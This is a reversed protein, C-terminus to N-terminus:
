CFFVNFNIRVDRRSTGPIYDYNNESFTTNSNKLVRTARARVGVLPLDKRVVVLIARTAAAPPFDDVQVFVHFTHRYSIRYLDVSM